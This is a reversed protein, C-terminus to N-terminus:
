KYRNEELYPARKGDDHGVRNEGGAFARNPLARAFTRPSALEWKTELDVVRAAVGHTELASCACSPEGEPISGTFRLKSKQLYNTTSLIM